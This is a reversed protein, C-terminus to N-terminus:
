KESYPPPKMSYDQTQYYDYNQYQNDTLNHSSPYVVNAYYVNESQTLVVGEAGYNALEDRLRAIKDEFM